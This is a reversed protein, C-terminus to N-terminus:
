RLSATGGTGMGARDRPGALYGGLMDIRIKTRGLVMHQAHPLRYWIAGHIVDPGCMATESAGMAEAEIGGRAHPAM